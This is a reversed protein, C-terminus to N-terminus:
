KIFYHYALDILLAGIVVWLATRALTKAEVAITNAHKAIKNAEDM